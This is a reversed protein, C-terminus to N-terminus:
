HRISQVNLPLLPKDLQACQRKERTTLAICVLERLLKRFLDSHALAGDVRQHPAKLGLPEDISIENLGRGARRALVVPEGFSPFCLAFLLPSCPDVERPRDIDDAVGTFRSVNTATRRSPRCPSDTSTM